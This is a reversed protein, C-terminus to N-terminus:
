PYLGRILHADAVRKVGICLAAERLAVGRDDAFARVEDYARRLRARLREDIAGPQSEMAAFGQLWEFHSAIVGGANALIDPVITVGRARLIADAANTTPGNAAEVVVRCRVRETNEQTLADGLAAPVLVDCDVEALADREIPEGIELSGIGASSDTALLADLEAVPLGAPHWRAGTVDSIGVVRFAPDAGLARAVRRGVNGHGIIAVRVPARLGADRVALRVCEVVGVSTASRRSESGGIIVPKGTVCSGLPQGTASAFTDMIWAMEREGTNVDPALIDKDPGIVPLIEGAYRRTMRELERESLAHPDCRVAGKAGGYPLGVLACKWTMLMALAATESLSAEPHFRLGGKGPGLTLSHAVRYGEFIAREGGDTLIPVAVEVARRSRSLMRHIDSRMGLLSAAHALQDQAQVWSRSGAADAGARQEDCPVARRQVAEMPAVSM